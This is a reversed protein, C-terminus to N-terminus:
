DQQPALVKSSHDKCPNLKLQQCALTHMCLANDLQVKQAHTLAERNGAFTRLLLDFRLLAM